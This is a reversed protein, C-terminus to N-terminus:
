YSPMTLKVRFPGTVWDRNDDNIVWRKNEHSFSLYYRLYGAPWTWQHQRDLIDYDLCNDSNRDQGCTIYYCPASTGEKPRILFSMSCKQGGNLPTPTVKQYEPGQQYPHWWVFVKPNVIQGSGKTEVDAIILLSNNDPQNTKVTGFFPLAIGQMSIHDEAHQSVDEHAYYWGATGNVGGKYYSYVVEGADGRCRIGNAFEGDDVVSNANDDCCIVIHLSDSYGDANVTSPAPLTVYLGDTLWGKESFVDATALTQRTKGNWKWVFAKSRTFVPLTVIGELKHNLPAAQIPQGQGSNGTNGDGNQGVNLNGSFTVSLDGNTMGQWNVQGNERLLGYYWGGSGNASGKYYAVVQDLGENQWTMGAAYEDDDMRANNNFDPCIALHHLPGYGAADFQAPAPLMFITTSNTPQAISGYATTVKVNGNLTWAFVKTSAVPLNQIQSSVRLECPEIPRDGSNNEGPDDDNTHPAVASNSGGGGCGTLSITWAAMLTVSLAVLLIRFVEHGRREIYKALFNIRAVELVTCNYKLLTM